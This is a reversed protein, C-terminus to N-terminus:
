AELYSIRNGSSTMRIKMKDESMRTKSNIIRSTSARALCSKRMKLTLLIMLGDRTRKRAIFCDIWLSKKVPALQIKRRLLATMWRLTRARQLSRTFWIERNTLRMWITSVIQSSITMLRSMSRCQRSTSIKQSTPWKMTRRVRNLYLGPDKRLALKAHALVFRKGSAIGRLILRWSKRRVTRARMRRTSTMGKSMRMGMTPTHTLAARDGKVQSNRWWSIRVIPSRIMRLVPARTSAKPWLSAQLTKKSWRNRSSRRRLLPHHDKLMQQQWPLSKRPNQLRLSPGGLAAWQPRKLYRKQSKPAEIPQLHSKRLTSMDQDQFLRNKWRLSSRRRKPLLHLPKRSSKPQNRRKSIWPNSSTAGLYRLARRQQPQGSRSCKARPCAELPLSGQFKAKRAYDVRFLQLKKWLVPWESSPAAKSALHQPVFCSKAKTKPVVLEGIEWNRRMPKPKPLNRHPQHPSLLLRRKPPLRAFAKKWALKESRLVRKKHLQVFKLVLPSVFM